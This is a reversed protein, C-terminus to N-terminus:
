RSIKLTLKTSSYIIFITKDIVHIVFSNINCMTSAMITVFLAANQEIKNNRFTWETVFFNIIILEVNEQTLKREFKLFNKYDKQLCPIGKNNSFPLHCM